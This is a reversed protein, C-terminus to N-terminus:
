KTKSHDMRPPHLVLVSGTRTERWEYIKEMRSWSNDETLMLLSSFLTGVISPQGNEVAFFDRGAVIWSPEWMPHYRPRLVYYQDRWWEENRFLTGITRRSQGAPIQPTTIIPMM